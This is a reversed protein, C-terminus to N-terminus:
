ANKRRGPRIKSLLACVLAAALSMFFGQASVQTFAIVASLILLLVFYFDNKNYKRRSSLFNMGFATFIAYFAFYGRYGDYGSTPLAGLAFLAGIAAYLACRPMVNKGREAFHTNGFVGIAMCPLLYIFLNLLLTPLIAFPFGDATLSAFLMMMVESAGVSIGLCLSASMDSRMTRCKSIVKAISDLTVRRLSVDYIEESDNKGFSVNACMAVSQATMQDGAAATIRGKESLAGLLKIRDQKSADSFVSCKEAKESFEEDSKDSLETFSACESESKVLKADKAIAAATLLNDGTVVITRVFNERLLKIAESAKPAMIERYGFSADFTMDHMEDEINEPLADLKKHALARVKLGNEAMHSSYTEIENHAEGDLPSGGGARTIESCLMPVAEVAGKVILIYGGDKLSHVSAMLKRAEDFPMFLLRKNEERLKAADIGRAFAANVAAADIDEGVAGLESIDCESCLAALAISSENEGFSDELRLASDTLMKGKDILLDDISGIDYVFDKESFVAGDKEVSKSCMRMAAMRVLRLPAPLLCLAAACSSILGFKPDRSKLSVACMIFAAALIACLVLIRETPSNKAFDDHLNLKKSRSETLRALVTDKGTATVAARASGKAIMTGCYLMNYTELAEGEFEMKEPRKAKPLSHPGFITEDAMLNECELIRADAPVFDGEELVLVDGKVILTPDSSMPRSDRIIKVDDARREDFRIAARREQADRYFGFVINGAATAFFLAWVPILGKFDLALVIIGMLLYIITYLNKVQALVLASVSKAYKKEPMNRGNEILRDHATFSSIGTQASTGLEIEAERETM